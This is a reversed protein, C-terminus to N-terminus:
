NRPGMFRDGNMHIMHDPFEAIWIETEWAIQGVFKKYVKWNQFATVFILGANGVYNNNIKNVRDISMPGVSSVAEILFIWEKRPDYLIIDPLLDHMNMPFGLDNLKNKEFKLDKQATDGIYLLESGGAFRPAFQEIVEKHLINHKGPTLEFKFNNYNVPIMARNRQAHLLAIRSTHSNLFNKLAFEYKKTGFLKILKYFDDELFWRFKKSNTAIGMAVSSKALGVTEMEKPGQKRLSERTNEKLNTDYYKNLFSLAQHIQIGDNKANKWSSGPKIGTAALLFRAAMNKNTIKKSFNVDKLMRVAENIKSLISEGM